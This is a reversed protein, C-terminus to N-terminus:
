TKILALEAYSPLKAIVEITYEGESLKIAYTQGKKAPTNGKRDGDIYIEADAPDSSIKLMGDNEGSSCGGMLATLAMMTSVLILRKM